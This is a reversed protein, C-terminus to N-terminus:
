RVNLHTTRLSFRITPNETCLPPNLLNSSSILYNLLYKKGTTAPVRRHPFHERTKGWSLLTYKEGVFVLLRLNGHCCVAKIDLYIWLVYFWMLICVTWRDNSSIVSCSTRGIGTRPNTWGLCLPFRRSGLCKSLSEWYLTRFSFYFCINIAINLKM